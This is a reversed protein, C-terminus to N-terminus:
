LANEFSDDIYVARFRGHSTMLSKTPFFNSQTLEATFSNLDNPAVTTDYQEFLDNQLRELNQNIPELKDDEDAPAATAVSASANPSECDYFWKVKSSHVFRFYHNCIFDFSLEFLIYSFNKKKNKEEEEEKIM